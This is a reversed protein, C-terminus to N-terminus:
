SIVKNYVALTQKAMRRWSYKKAQAYGKNILEDRLKPNNTVELVKDAIDNVDNPNFYHAAEGCVEPICSANSSVVPCGHVMAELPPLGFGESLSPFVFAEAHTYYWKLEADNVFGTFIIDASCPKNKVWEELKLSSYDRKGILVLKLRPQVKQLQCFALILKELNKHSFAKGTYMIFKEPPHKPKTAKSTLPPESAELTVTIKNKIFPYKESIENAIFKTPTFVHSALRLSHWFLFRYLQLQIYNIWAARKDNGVFKFRTLDHATTVQTKLYFLPQQPTMGFHVLDPKLKYLFRAFTIQDLPNFSFLKFSCVKTFFNSNTPKWNDNQNLLVTYKNNKDIAQLHNLLRDVYRGTSETRVRADIVIHKKIM